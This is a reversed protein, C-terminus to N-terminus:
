YTFNNLKVNTDKKKSGIKEVEVASRCNSIFTNKKILNFKKYSLKIFKCYIDVKRLVLHIHFIYIKDGCNVFM